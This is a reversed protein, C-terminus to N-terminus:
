HFTLKLTGINLNNSTLFISLVKSIKSKKFLFLFNWNKKIEIIATKAARNSDKDIPKSIGITEISM